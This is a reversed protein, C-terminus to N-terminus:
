KKQPASWEVHPLEKFARTMKENWSKRMSSLYDDDGELVMFNELRLTDKEYKLMEIPPGVTVNSRMTSDMSLLACLAADDLSTDPAILRDLMAKGYKTEGIQLFCTQPSTTIYNGQPYVLYLQPPSATGIQGGVIFTAEATFGARAVAEEHRGGQAVSINGLYEAAEAMDRVTLMSTESRNSIDRQFQTMVAQTTALNGASLVIIQRDRAGFSRM